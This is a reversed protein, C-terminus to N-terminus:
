QQDTIALATVCDAGLGCIDCKTFNTNETDKYDFHTIQHDLKELGALFEKLDKDDQDSLGSWDDNEIVSVFHSAITYEYFDIGESMLWEKYKDANDTEHTLHEMTKEKATQKISVVDM